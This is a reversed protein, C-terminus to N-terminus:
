SAVRGRAAALLTELDQVTAPGFQYGVVLGDPSIAFTEPQGRTGFALAANGGPDFAITWAEGRARVWREVEARTDDRVIGVMLFDPDDAHREYFRALAPAEERCPVCWTNWFNVITAKGALDAATLEEGDLTRVTFRPADRGALHSTKADARPDNGVQTALLVSLGIVLVGVSGAVWRAPRRVGNV